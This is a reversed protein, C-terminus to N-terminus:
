HYPTTAFPEYDVSHCSILDGSGQPPSPCYNGDWSPGDASGWYNNEASIPDPAYSYVGYAGNDVIDSYTISTTGGNSVGNGSNHSIVSDVLILVGGNLNAIGHNGSHAVSCSTVVLKGGDNFLNATNLGAFRVTTFNLNAQGSANVNIGAWDGPSPLTAGGDGLTDGGVADDHISTFYVSNGATGQAKL